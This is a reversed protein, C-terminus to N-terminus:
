FDIIVAGRSKGEVGAYKRWSELFEETHGRHGYVKMAKRLESLVETEALGSPVSIRVLKWKVTTEDTYEGKLVVQAIKGRCYFYFPQEDPRDKDVVGRFLVYDKEEDITLNGPKREGWVPVVFTREQGYPLEVNKYAM